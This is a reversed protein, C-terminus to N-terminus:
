LRFLDIILPKSAHHGVAPLAPFKPFISTHKRKPPHLPHIQIAYIVEVATWHM